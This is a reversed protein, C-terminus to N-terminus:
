RKPMWFRIKLKKRQHLLMRTRRMSPPYAITSVAAMKILPIM